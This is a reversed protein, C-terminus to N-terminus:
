LSPIYLGGSEESHLRDSKNSELANALLVIAENTSPTACTCISSSETSVSVVEICMSEFLITVLTQKPGSSIVLEILLNKLEYV